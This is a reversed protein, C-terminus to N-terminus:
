PTMHLWHPYAPVDSKGVHPILNWKEIFNSFSDNFYDWVFNWLVAILGWLTLDVVAESTTDQPLNIILRGAWCQQAQLYKIYDLHHHWITAADAGIASLEMLKFFYFAQM